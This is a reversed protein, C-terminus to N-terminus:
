GAVTLTLMRTDGRIVGSREAMKGCLIYCQPGERGRRPQIVSWLSSVESKDNWFIDINLSGASTLHRFHFHFIFLGVLCFVM